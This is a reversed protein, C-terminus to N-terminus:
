CACQAARMLSDSPCSAFCADEGSYKDNWPARNLAVQVLIPTRPSRALATMGVVKARVSAKLKEAQENLAGWPTHKHAAREGRRMAVQWTLGTAEPRKDASQYGADALVVTQQGHLLAHGQTVYNVNAVTGIVTHVLGSEADVAIRAKMGFHWQQGKKTQHMQPDGKGSSNKTPSPAAILTTDVVSGAKLLLGLVALKANIVHLIRPSIQHQELLLRFRLIGVRDHIRNFGNLGCFDRDLAAEFPSEEAALDSLGLWQQLCYIRLMLGLKFPPRGTKAVPTHPEILALLEVRPRVRQVDDLMVEKRTRRTSLNLGLDEKKM